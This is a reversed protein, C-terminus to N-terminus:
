SNMTSRKSSLIEKYNNQKRDTQSSEEGNKYQNKQGVSNNKSGGKFKKTDDKRVVGKKSDGKSASEYTDVRQSNSPQNDDVVNQGSYTIQHDESEKIQINNRM